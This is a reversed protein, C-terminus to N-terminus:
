RMRLAHMGKKLIEPSPSRASPMSICLFHHHTVNAELLVVPFCVEERGFVAELVCFLPPAVWFFVVPLVM